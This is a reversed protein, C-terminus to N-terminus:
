GSLSNSSIEAKRIPGSRLDFRSCAMFDLSILPYATQMSIAIRDGGVSTPIAFSLPPGYMCVYQANNIDALTNAPMETIHRCGSCHYFVDPGHDKKETM